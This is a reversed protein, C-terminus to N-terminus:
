ESFADISQAANTTPVGWGASAGGGTFDGEGGNKLSGSTRIIDTTNFEVTEVSPKIYNKM